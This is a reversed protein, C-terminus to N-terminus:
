IIENSLNGNRKWTCMYMGKCRNDDRSSQLSSRISMIIGVWKNNNDNSGPLDAYLRTRYACVYIYIYLIYIIIYVHVICCCLRWAPRTYDIMTSTTQRRRYITYDTCTYVNLRNFVIWVYLLLLVRTRNPPM